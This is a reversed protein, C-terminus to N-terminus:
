RQEEAFAWPLFSIVSRSGAEVEADRLSERISVGTRVGSDSFVPKNWAIGRRGCRRNPMPRYTAHWAMMGRGSSRGGSRPRPTGFVPSYGGGRGGLSRVLDISMTVTPRLVFLVKQAFCTFNRRGMALSHTNQAVGEICRGEAPQGVSVATRLEYEPEGPQWGLRSGRAKTPVNGSGEGFRVESGDSPGYPSVGVRGVGGAM